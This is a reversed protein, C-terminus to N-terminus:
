HHIPITDFFFRSIDEPSYEDHKMWWRITEAFDCVMHNLMYEKPVDSKTTDLVGNFVQKLYEKFYQM